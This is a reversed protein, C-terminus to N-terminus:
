LAGENMNLIIFSEDKMFDFLETTKDFDLQALDGCLHAAINNVEHSVGEVNADDGSHQCSLLKAKTEVLIDIKSEIVSIKALADADDGYCIKMQKVNEHFYVPGHNLFSEMHKSTSLMLCHICM